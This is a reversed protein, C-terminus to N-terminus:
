LDSQVFTCLVATMALTFCEIAYMDEHMQKWSMLYILHIIIIVWLSGLFARSQTVYIHYSLYFRSDSNAILTYNQNTKPLSSRIALKLFLHYNPNFYRRRLSGSHCFARFAFEDWTHLFDLFFRFSIFCSSFCLAPGAMMDDWKVQTLWPKWITQSGCLRKVCHRTKNLNFCAKKSLLDFNSSCTFRRGARGRAWLELQSQIVGPM